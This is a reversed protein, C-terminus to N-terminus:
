PLIKLAATRIRCEIGAGGLPHDRRDALRLEDVGRLIRPEPPDEEVARDLDIRREVVEVAHFVRDLADDAEEPVRRLTELLALLDEIEEARDAAALGREGLPQFLQHLLHRDVHQLGAVLDARHELAREAQEIRSAHPRRELLLYPM